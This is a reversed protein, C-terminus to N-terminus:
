AKRYLRDDPPPPTFFTDRKIRQEFMTMEDKIYIKGDVVMVQTTTKPLWIKKDSESEKEM